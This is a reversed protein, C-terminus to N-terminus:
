SGPIDRPIDNWTYEDPENPDPRGGNRICLNRRDSARDKCGKFYPMGFPRFQECRGDEKEWRDYCDEEEGGRPGGTGARSHLFQILGQMGKLFHDAWPDFVGPPDWWPRTRTTDQYGAPVFAPLTSQGRVSPNSWGDAQPISPSSRAGSPQLPVFGFPLAPASQMPPSANTLDVSPLLPPWFMQGSGFSEESALPPWRMSGVSSGGFAPQYPTAYETSNSNDPSRKEWTEHVAQAWPTEANPDDHDPFGTGLTLGSLIGNGPVVWSNRGAM